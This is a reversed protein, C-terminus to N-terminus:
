EYLGACMGLLLGSVETRRGKDRFRRVAGRIQEDGAAALATGSVLIRACIAFVEPKSTWGLPGDTGEAAAIRSLTELGSLCWQSLAATASSSSPQPLSSFINSWRHAERVEDVYLNQEEIVFLSDDFRMAETLQAEAPIWGELLQKATSPNTSTPGQEPAVYSSSPSSPLNGAMRCAVHARFEDNDGYRALLWHLLRRGAEVSILRQNSLLPTAVAAAAARVEDDDDNLADYLAILWPLHASDSNKETSTLKFAISTSFSHMAGVAAMRTDFTRDAMGADSIMAGWSRLWPELDNNTTEESRLVIVALLPGSVRVIADSLSPNMPKGYLDAWFKAIVENDPLHKLGESADCLVSDMLAAINELAMTRPEPADTEFCVQIYTDILNGRTEISESSDISSMSELMSCAVNVDGKLAAVLLQRLTGDAKKSSQRLAQLLAAQGLRIDLLASPAAKIGSQNNLEFVWSPLIDRSEVVLGGEPANGTRKLRTIFNAVEIYVARTEPCTSISENRSVLEALIGHIKGVNYDSLQEPMVESLRELLFKITLLAGHLKNSTESSALLDPISNLWGPKLLFSCLTRAAIERVHWIPSGLYWAIIDYLKDRFEEPPGARRIIDLSPFVSEATQTGILVGSSQQGTELLNVLLVPLAKFKSYPIKITRGDWGAEISTKSESTGFLCDILSRLLLLGCNRIAWIESKLSSAALELCDTLYPEARKSLYSSKFIDKICNLAHVQPLNSGDTESALAPRRGIDQLNRIVDEFSPRNANSSLIGVILAPIGASRRTTSAQTHICTLAGEYWQDLFGSKDSSPHPFWKVLQCCSTFTQSVTTFAGRHRLNSLEDFTLVGIAEFNARSPALLEPGQHSANSAIARMLNSSEHIARFSYSLLDKTDLGEVEELEEPLHGEPSDDCLVHRVARWIRQCCAIARDQIKALAEIDERSFKMTSFSNWIYRLSAFSGHVPAQLVANALDQEAASLKTELSSLITFPIRMREESNISWRCLLEFSRAAGDSHDARATRRALEDAKNCFSRLEEIPTKGLEKMQKQLEPNGIEPSLAMVLSAATERVDDFPDMILDLISRFWTVDILLTSLEYSNLIASGHSPAPKAIFVMAKLATIHRQYSTTPALENKLFGVYWSAFDEHQRLVANLKAVTDNQHRELQSDKDGRNSKAKNIKKSIRDAERRLSEITNQIRKIMNRSHGLVDYRMKPDSDEYFSPLYQKLLEIAETTYPKTTSPSAILLSVASTRAEQSDHCLVRELVDARLQFGSQSDQESERGPEDVVGVKKGAELMALWLMSNLDWGNSDKSTLRQLSSLHRLYVLSGARDVNFLQVFIYFKIPELYDLNIQLGRYIFRHWTNPEHRVDKDEYWSSTFITVLLNGVVHCLYHLEMWAFISAVFADWVDEDLPLGHIENYLELISCLYVLKKQIFCDLVVMASKVSPRSSQQTITSVTTNLIIAKVSAGVEPRPNNSILYALYDLILRMSRHSDKENWEMFFDFLRMATDEAFAFNQLTPKSSKSCQEIFGHLKVCANGSYQRPKAACIILEEFMVQWLQLEEPQEELWSVAHKPNFNTESVQTAMSSKM